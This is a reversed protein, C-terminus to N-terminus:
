GRGETQPLAPRYLFGQATKTKTSQTRCKSRRNNIPYKGIWDRLALGLRILMSAPLSFIRIGFIRKHNMREGIDKLDIARRYIFGVM